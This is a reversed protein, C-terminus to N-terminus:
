SAPTRGAPAKGTPEPARRDVQGVTEGSPLRFGVRYGAITGTVRPFVLSFASTEGSRLEPRELPTTQSTLVRGNADLLDAVALLQPLERGETPNRVLGSVDFTTGNEFRYQLAILEIPRDPVVTTPADTRAGGALVAYLAIVLAMVTGVALLSIWRRPSRSEPLERESFITPASEYTDLENADAELAAEAESLFGPTSHSISSGSVPVASVDPFALSKLLEVRALERVRAGRAIRWAMVGLAAAASLLLLAAVWLLVQM